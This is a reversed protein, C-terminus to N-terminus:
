RAVSSQLRSRVTVRLGTSSISRSAWCACSSRMPSRHRPHRRHESPGRLPKDREILKEIPFGADTRVVVVGASPIAGIAPMKDMPYDRGQEKLLWRLAVGSGPVILTLGDPAKKEILDRM